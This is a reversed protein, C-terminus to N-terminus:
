WEADNSFKEDPGQEPRGNTLREGGGDGRGSLDMAIAAYGRDVWMQVWEAFAKGGGGHVCVMGPVPTDSDPVGLYAFVETEKGLYLENAYLIKKLDGESGIVEYATHGFLQDTNWNAVTHM